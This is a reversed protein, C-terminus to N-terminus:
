NSKPDATIKVTYKNNNLGNIAYLMEKAVEKNNKGSVSEHVEDITRTNFYNYPNEGNTASGWGFDFKLYVDVVDDAPVPIVGTDPLAVWSGEAMGGIQYFAKPAAVYKEDVAAIADGADFDVKVGDLYKALNETTDNISVTFKLIATLNEQAVGTYGLWGETSNDEPAGFVIDANGHITIASFEINKEDVAYVTFSGSEYEEPEPFEIIWWAAFGVSLIALCSLIGVLKMGLSFKSKITAKM